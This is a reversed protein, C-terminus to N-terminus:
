TTHPKKPKAAAPAPAAPAPPVYNGELEHFPEYYASGCGDYITVNQLLPPSGNNYILVTYMNQGTYGGFGNRANAKLCISWGFISKTPAAISADRVSEPDKFLTAKYNLIIERYDGRDAPWSADATTQDTVCGGLSACLALTASCIGFLRM